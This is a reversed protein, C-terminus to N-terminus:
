DLSVVPLVENFFGKIRLSFFPVIRLERQREGDHHHALALFPFIEMIM